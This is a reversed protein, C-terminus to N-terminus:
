EHVKSERRVRRVGVGTEHVEVIGERPVFEDNRGRRVFPYVRRARSIDKYDHVVGWAFGRVSEYAIPFCRV